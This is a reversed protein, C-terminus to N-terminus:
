PIEDIRNSNNSDIAIADTICKLNMLFAHRECYANNCENWDRNSEGEGMEVSM